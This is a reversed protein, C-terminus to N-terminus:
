DAIHVFNGELLQRESGNLWKYEGFTKALRGFVDM